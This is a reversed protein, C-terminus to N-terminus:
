PDSGLCRPSCRVWVFSRKWSSMSASEGFPRTMPKVFWVTFVGGGPLNSLGMVPDGVEPM